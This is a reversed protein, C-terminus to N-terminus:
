KSLRRRILLLAAGFVGFMGVTAPEPIVEVSINDVAYDLGESNSTSIFGVAALASTTNLPDTGDKDRLAASGWYVGDLWFDASDAALDRTGSYDNIATDGDNAYITLTHSENLVMENTKTSTATIDGTD